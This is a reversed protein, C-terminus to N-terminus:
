APAGPASALGALALEIREALAADSLVDAEFREALGPPALGADVLASGILIPAAIAGAIFTVAQATAVPKLAGARQAAAVLAVVVGFHRPFNDRVFDLAARERLAADALLRRLLQRNDRAFRAIVQLAGRLAAIQSTSDAAALELEAFMAEYLSQLLTRVFADKTGFHYHFMGLNAGAREAVKRVSLGAVGTEPYLERGAALLRADVNRSPRPV